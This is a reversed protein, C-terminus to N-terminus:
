DLRAGTRRAIEGWAETEKRQFEAFQAAPLDLIESAMGEVRAKFNESKLLARAERQIKDVIEAPTSAPAMLGTWAASRISPFGLETTTPVDPLSRDRAPGSVALARIKGDQILPAMTSIPDFTCQVEGSVVAMLAPASGRYPVHTLKTGTVHAFNEMALHSSVGAGPSSFNIEGPRAKAYDILEQLTRVPLSPTIGIASYGITLGSIAVLDRAPNYPLKSYVSPAIATAALTAILLTYGDPPAKAVADTGMTAGAGARNEVITPTNWSMQLHTALLRAIIDTNGGPAFPNVIKITRNPYVEAAVACPGAALLAAAAALGGLITRRTQGDSACAIDASPNTVDHRM